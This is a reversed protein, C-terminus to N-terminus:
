EIIEDAQDDARWVAFAEHHPRVSEVADQLPAEIANRLEIHREVTNRVPVLERVRLDSGFIAEAEIGPPHIGGLVGRELALLRVLSVGICCAPSPAKCTM